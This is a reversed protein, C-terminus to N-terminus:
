RGLAALVVREFGAPDAALMADRDAYGAAAVGRDIAIQTRASEGHHDRCDDAGSVVLENCCASYGQDGLHTDEYDTSGCQECHTGTVECASMISM